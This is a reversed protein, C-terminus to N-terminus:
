ILGEAKMKEAKTFHSTKGYLISLDLMRRNVLIKSKSGHGIRRFPIEGKAIHKRLSSESIHLYSSTQNIDLWTSQFGRFKEQLDSIKMFIEKLIDNDM